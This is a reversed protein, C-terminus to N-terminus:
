LSKGEFRCEFCGEGTPVPRAILQMGPEYDSAAGILLAEEVVGPALEIEGVAQPMSLGPVIAAKIEVCALLRGEGARVQTRLSDSGCVRCGYVGEGLTAAGCASCESFLLDVRSPDSSLRYLTPHLPSLQTSM